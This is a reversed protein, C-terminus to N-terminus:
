RVVTKQSPREVSCLSLLSPSLKQLIPRGCPGCSSGKVAWVKKGTRKKVADKIEFPGFLDLTTYDFPNARQSREPPLDSMMQQCMKGKLKHCTICNNVVKKVTRRGQVIWARRRTRLLTAAVGEHNEDHAERALLTAVWSHFPILPVATGDERWSQIRGGCLLIGTNEDKYVVLCNLTSDLFQSGDQAALVLDQFAQAREQTSLILQNAEWKPLDLTQCRRLWTEVARRTWAISGCLKSLSSFRQPEM